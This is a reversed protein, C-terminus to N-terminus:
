PKSEGFFFFVVLWNQEPKTKLSLKGFTVLQVEGCVYNHSLCVSSLMAGGMCCHACVCVYMACM